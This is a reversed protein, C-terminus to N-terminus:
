LYHSAANIRKEPSPHAGLFTNHYINQLCKRYEHGYKAIYYRILLSYYDSMSLDKKNDQLIDYTIIFEKDRKNEKELYLEFFEILGAAKNNNRYAFADAEQEFRKGILFRSILSLLDFLAIYKVYRTITLDDESVIYPIIKVYAILTAVLLALGKNCHNYKIHGIEHAIVAELADDSLERVLKQGIIIGGSSLLLKQAAANLFGDQRTIFIVPVSINANNCIQEIYNYLFPMTEPTVVVVDLGLFACHVFRQFTSLNKCTLIDRQLESLVQNADENFIMETQSSKKLKKLETYYVGYSKPLSQTYACFALLVAIFIKKM